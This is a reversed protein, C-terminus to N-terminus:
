GGEVGRELIGASEHEGRRTGKQGAKGIELNAKGGEVSILQDTTRGEVSRRDGKRLLRSLDGPVCARGPPGAHGFIKRVKRIGGTKGGTSFRVPLVIRGACNGFVEEVM